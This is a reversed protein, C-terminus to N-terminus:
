RYTSDLENPAFKHLEVIESCSPPTYGYLHVYALNKPSSVLFFKARTLKTCILVAIYKFIKKIDINISILDM